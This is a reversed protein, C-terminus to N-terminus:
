HLLVSCVQQRKVHESIWRARAPSPVGKESIVVEIGIFLGRGRVDGIIHPFLDKLAGLKELMYKGVVRANDQLGRAEIENLVAVASACAATGGGFTNFYSPQTAFADSLSRSTAVCAVPYGNGMAKGMTVMDPTVGQMGRLKSSRKTSHVDFCVFVPPACMFSSDGSCMGLAASVV